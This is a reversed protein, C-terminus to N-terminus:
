RRKKSSYEEEDEGFVDDEDYSGENEESDSIERRRKNKKAAMIKSENEREKHPDYSRRTSSGSDEVDVDDTELFQSSLVKDQNKNKGTFKEKLEARKEELIEKARKDEEPDAFGQTNAVLKSGQKVGKQVAKRFNMTDTRWQEINTPNFALKKSLVGHCQLFSESSAEARQRVYIDRYDRYDSPVIDYCEKGVFLSMSGDSWTVVRSNSERVIDGFDDVSNRWRVANHTTKAVVPKGAENQLIVPNTDVVYLDPDFPIPQLLLSSPLKAGYLKVNEPPKQYPMSICEQEPQQVIQEQYGEQYGQEQYGDQYDGQNEQEQNDDEQAQNDQMENYAQNEMEIDNGPNGEENLHEAVQKDIEELEELESSSFVLDEM